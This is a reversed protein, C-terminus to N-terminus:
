GNIQNARQNDRGHWVQGTATTKIQGLRAKSRDENCDDSLSEQGVFSSGATLSDKQMINM